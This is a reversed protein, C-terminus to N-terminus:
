GRDVGSIVSINVVTDEVAKQTLLSHLKARLEVTRLKATLDGADGAELMIGELMSLLTDKETSTRSPSKRAYTSADPNRGELVAQLREKVEDPLTAYLKANQPESQLRKIDVPNVKKWIAFPQEWCLPSASTWDISKGIHKSKPSYPFEDIM